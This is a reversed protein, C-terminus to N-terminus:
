CPDTRHGTCEDGGGGGSMSVAIMLALVIMGALIVVFSKARFEPLAEDLWSIAMLPLIAICALFLPALFVLSLFVIMRSEFLLGILVLILYTATSILLVKGLSPYKRPM